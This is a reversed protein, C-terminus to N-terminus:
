IWIDDDNNGHHHEDNNENYINEDNCNAFDVWIFSILPRSLTVVFFLGFSLFFAIFFALYSVFCVFHWTVGKRVVTGSAYSNLHGRTIASAAYPLPPPCAPSGPLVALNPCQNPSRSPCSPQSVPSPCSPQSVPYLFLFPCSPQSMTYPFRSPHIPQFVPYPFRASAGPLVVPSSGPLLIPNTFQAHIPPPDALSDLCPFWPPFVLLYGLLPVSCLVLCPAWVDSGFLFFWVPSGSLPSGNAPSVGRLPFEKARAMM